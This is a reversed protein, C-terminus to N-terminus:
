EPFVWKTYRALSKGPPFCNCRQAVGGTLGSWCGPFVSGKGFALRVKGDQAYIPELGRRVRLESALPQRRNMVPAMRGDCRLRRKHHREAIEGSTARSGDSVILAHAGVANVIHRPVRFFPARVFGTGPLM